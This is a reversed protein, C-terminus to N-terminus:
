KKPAPKPSGPAAAPPAGKTWVRADDFAQPEKAHEALFATAAKPPANLLPSGEDMMVHAPLKGARALDAAWGLKLPELSLKGEPMRVRWVVRVPVVHVAFAPDLKPPNDVTTELFREGGAAFLFAHFSSEVGNDGHLTIEYGKDKKGDYEGRYEEEHPKFTMVCLENKHESSASCNKMTWTGLLAPDYTATGPEHWAQLNSLFCGSLALACFLAAAGSAALLKLRHM